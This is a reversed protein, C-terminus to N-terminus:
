APPLPKSREGSKFKPGSLWRDRRCIWLFLVFDIYALRLWRDLKKATRCIMDFQSGAFFPSVLGAEVIGSRRFLAVEDPPHFHGKNRPQFIGTGPGGSFLTPV